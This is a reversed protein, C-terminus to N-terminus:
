GGRVRDGRVPPVATGGTGSGIAVPVPVGKGSTGGTRQMLRPTIVPTSNTEPRSAIGSIKRELPAIKKSKSSTGGPHAEEGQKATLRHTLKCEALEAPLEFHHEELKKRVTAQLWM